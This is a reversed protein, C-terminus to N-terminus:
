LEEILIMEKDWAGLIQWFHGFPSQVLLIPDRRKKTEEFDKKDAIIYFVAQKDCLEKTKKNYEKMVAVAEAPMDALFQAVQGMKLYNHEKVLENIKTTTTYPYQEFFDNFKAYKKRNEMRILISSIQSTGRQMDYEESKILALKDKFDAVQKDVYAENTNLKFSKDHLMKLSYVEKPTLQKVTKKPEVKKKGKTSESSNINIGEATIEMVSQNIWSGELTNNAVNSNFDPLYKSDRIVNYVNPLIAHEVKNFEFLEKGFLKIKM